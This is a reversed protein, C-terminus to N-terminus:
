VHALEAQTLTDLQMMQFEIAEGVGVPFAADKPFGELIFERLVFSPMYAYAAVPMPANEAFQSTDCLANTLALSLVREPFYRAFVLALHGGLSVGYLHASRIDKAAMFRAFSEAWEKQTWAVPYGVALVRYGRGSLGLM